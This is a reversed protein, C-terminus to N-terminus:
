TCISSTSARMWRTSSSSFRESMVRPATSRRCRGRPRCASRLRGRHNGAVRTGLHRPDPGLVRLVLGPQLDLQRHALDVRLRPRIGSSASPRILAAPGPGPRGCRRSRPWWGARRSRRGSSGPPPARCPSGSRGSPRVDESTTSVASASWSWCPRRDGARPGRASGRPASAASASRCRSVRQTPRVWPMWASGMTKPRLAARQYASAPRLRSRRRRARSVTRTPLSEPATPVKAWTSGSTSSSAQRRRPSSAAGIELWITWRSRCASNEVVRAM